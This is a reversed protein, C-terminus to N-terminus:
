MKKHAKPVNFFPSLRCDDFNWNQDEPVVKKVSSRYSKCTSLQVLGFRCGATVSGGIHQLEM